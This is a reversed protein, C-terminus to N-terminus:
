FQSMMILELGDSDESIEEEGLDML